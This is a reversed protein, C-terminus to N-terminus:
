YHMGLAIRAEFPFTPNCPNEKADGNSKYGTSCECDYSGPTDHCLGNCPFELPRSCEDIDAVHIL